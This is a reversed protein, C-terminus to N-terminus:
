KAFYDLFTKKINNLNERAQKIILDKQATLQNYQNNLETKQQTLSIEQENLFSKQTDSDDLSINLATITRGASQYSMQERIKNTKQSKTNDDGSVDFVINNNCENPYLAKGLDRTYNADKIQGSIQSKQNNIQNRQFTLQRKQMDLQSLQMTIQNINAYLSQLQLAENETM